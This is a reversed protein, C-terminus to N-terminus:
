CIRPLQEGSLWDLIRTGGFGGRVQVFGPLQAHVAGIRAADRGLPHARMAALVADASQAPVIAVMKGENAIHLPDLGLLECAADVAPHVPIADEDLMMGVASAACIENLCASLGGRTPDRMVHIDRCAAVVTAALTHLAASDSVVDTDFGIGPRRSLIAIGHDGLTGSVIISDGPRARSASPAVGPPQVGIGATTIFVGDGKGREVVKTDGTVIRVDANRAASAMSEVVRRLDSLKLGEELIFAATLYLPQAGSMAIDNVTGHVSLAGIDGGPFFLPSVVFSDTSMVLQAGPSAFTAQDDRAALMPNDFAPLFLEETLQATARGGGGHTLEVRGETFDLKRGFRQPIM